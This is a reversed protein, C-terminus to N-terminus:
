DLYKPLAIRSLRAFDMLKQATSDDMLLSANGSSLKRSNAIRAKDAFPLRDLFPALRTLNSLDTVDLILQYDIDEFYFNQPRLHSDMERMTWIFGPSKIHIRIRDLAEAFESVNMCDGGRPMSAQARLIHMRDSDVVTNFREPECTLKNKFASILRSFPDRQVAVRLTHNNTLIDWREDESLDHMNRAYPAWCELSKNQVTGCQPKNWSRGSLGTYLTRWISTSGAKGMTTFMTDIPRVYAMDHWFHYFIHRMRARDKLVPRLNKSDVYENALSLADDSDDANPIEVDRRGTLTDDPITESMNCPKISPWINGGFFSRNAILAVCVQVILVTGLILTMMLNRGCIIGDNTRSPLLGACMGNSGKTMWGGASPMVM